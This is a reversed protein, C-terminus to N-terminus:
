LGSRGQIDQMTHVRVAEESSSPSFAHPIRTTIDSHIAAIGPSGSNRPLRGLTCLLKAYHTDIWLGSILALVARRPPWWIGSTCSSITVCCHHWISPPGQTHHSLTVVEEEGAQQSRPDYVKSVTLAIILVIVKSSISPHRVAAYYMGAYPSHPNTVPLIPLIDVCIHCTRLSALTPM